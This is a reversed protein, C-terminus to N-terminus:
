KPPTYPTEHPPLPHKQPLFPEPQASFHVLTLGKGAAALTNTFRQQLAAHSTGFFPRALGLVLPKCQGSTLEVQATESVFYVRFVGQYEKVGGSV